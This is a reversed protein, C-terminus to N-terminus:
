TVTFPLVMGNMFHDKHEGNSGNDAIYCAFQYEGPPLEVALSSAAGAPMGGTEAIMGEEDTAGAHTVVLEHAITGDNHVDIYIKGAPMTTKDSTIKWETLTTDVVTTAQLRTFAQTTSPAAGSGTQAGSATESGSGDMEQVSGTSSPREEGKSCAGLALALTLTLAAAPAAAIRRPRGQM